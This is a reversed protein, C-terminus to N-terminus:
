HPGAYCPMRDLLEDLGTTDIVYRYTGYASAIEIAVRPNARLAELFSTQEPVPVSLARGSRATEWRSAMPVADGFRLSVPYGDARGLLSDASLFIAIGSRYRGDCLIALGSATAGRPHVSAWAIALSSDRDTVVDRRVTLEWGGVKVVDTRAAPACGVGGVGVVVAAVVAQLVWRRLAM